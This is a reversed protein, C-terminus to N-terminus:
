SPPDRAWFCILSVFFQQFCILSVFVQNRPLIFRGPLRKSVQADRCPRAFESDVPCQCRPATVAVSAAIEGSAFPAPGRAVTCGQAVQRWVSHCVRVCAYMTLCLCLCGCGCWWWWWWSCARVCARVRMCARLPVCVRWVRETERKQERM